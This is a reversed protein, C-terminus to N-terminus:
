LSKIVKMVAYQIELLLFGNLWFIERERKEKIRTTQTRERERKRERENEERM